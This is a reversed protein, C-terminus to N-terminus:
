HGRPPRVLLVPVKAAQVIRDAVSGIVWRALGGRGHTSMAILDAQVEQAYDLITDAVLGGRVSATVNLGDEQLSRAVQNLYTNAQAELESSDTLTYLAVNPDAAMFEYVPYVLVRLLAIEAGTCGSLSRVHPLVAEALESGDLPVLIHKYM